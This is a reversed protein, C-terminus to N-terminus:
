HGIPFDRDPLHASMELSGKRVSIYCPFGVPMM